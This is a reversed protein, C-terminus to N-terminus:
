EPLPNLSYFYAKITGLTFDSEDPNVSYNVWESIQWYTEGGDTVKVFILDNRDYGQDMEYHENLYIILRFFLESIQFEDSGEPPDDIEYTDTYAELRYPGGEEYPLLMNAIARSEEEYSWSAPITYGNINTGVDREDFYFVFGPTLMASYLGAERANIAYVLAILCKRPTEATYDLGPEPSVADKCSLVLLVAIFFCAPLIKKM